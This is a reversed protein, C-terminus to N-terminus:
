AEPDVDSLGLGYATGILCLVVKSGAIPLIRALVEVGDDTVSWDMDIPGSYPMFGQSLLHERAENYTDFHRGGAM